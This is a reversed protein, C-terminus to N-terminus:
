RRTKVNPPDWEWADGKFVMANGCGKCILQDGEHVNRVVRMFEDLTALCCRMLGGHRVKFETM